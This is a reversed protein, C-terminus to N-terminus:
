KANPYYKKIKKWRDVKQKRLDRTGALKYSKQYIVITLGVQLCYRLITALVTILTWEIPSLVDLIISALIAMIALVGWFHYHPSQLFFKKHDIKENLHAWNGHTEWTFGIIPELYVILYGAINMVRERHRIFMSLCFFIIPYAALLILSMHQSFAFALVATTSTLCINIISDQVKIEENMEERLMMYEQIKTEILFEKEWSETKKMINEEMLEIYVDKLTHNM